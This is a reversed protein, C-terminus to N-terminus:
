HWKRMGEDLSLRELLRKSVRKNYDDPPTPAAPTLELLLAEAKVTVIV